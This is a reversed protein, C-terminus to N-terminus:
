KGRRCRRRGRSNSPAAPGPADVKLNNGLTLVICYRGETGDDELVGHELCHGRIFVVDGHRVAISIGLAPFRLRHLRADRDGDRHFYILAAYSERADNADRHPPTVREPGNTWHLSWFGYNYPQRELLAFAVRAMQCAAFLNVACLAPFLYELVGGLYWNFLHLRRNANPDPGFQMNLVVPTPVKASLRQCGTTIREGRVEDAGGEGEGEGEKRARKKPNPAPRTLWGERELEALKDRMVELAGTELAARGAEAAAELLAEDLEANEHPKSAGRVAFPFAPAGCAVLAALRRAAEGEAFLGPLHVAAVETGFRLCSKDSERGMVFDHRAEQGKACGPPLPEVLPRFKGRPREVEALYRTDVDGGGGPLSYALAAHRHPAMSLMAVAAAHRPGAPNGLFAGEIARLAWTAVPRPALGLGLESGYLEAERAPPGTMGEPVIGGPLFITQGDWRVPGFSPFGFTHKARLEARVFPSKTSLPRAPACLAPEPPPPPGRRRAREEHPARRAPAGEARRHRPKGPAAGGAEGGGSPAGAGANPEQERLQRPQRRPGPSPQPQRASAEGAASPAADIQKLKRGIQAAHGRLSAAARKANKRARSVAWCPVPAAAPQAGAPGGAASIEVRDGPMVRLARSPSTGPRLLGRWVALREQFARAAPRIPEIDQARRPSSRSATSTSPASNPPHPVQIDKPQISTRSRHIALLSDGELTKTLDM